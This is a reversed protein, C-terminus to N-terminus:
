ICAIAANRTSETQALASSSGSPPFIHPNCDIRVNQADSHERASAGGIHLFGLHAHARDAAHVIPIRHACIRIKM